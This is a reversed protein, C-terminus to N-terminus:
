ELTKIEGELHKKIFQREKNNLTELIGVRGYFSIDENNKHVLISVIPKNFSTAELLKSKRNFKWLGNFGGIWINGHGDEDISGVM